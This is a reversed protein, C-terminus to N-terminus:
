QLALPVDTGSGWSQHKKTASPRNLIAAMAAPTPARALSPLAEEERAAATLRGRCLKPQSIPVLGAQIPHDLSSDTHDASEASQM